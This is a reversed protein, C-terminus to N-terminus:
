NKLSKRFSKADAKSLSNFYKMVDSKDTHSYGLTVQFLNGKIETRAKILYNDNEEEILFLVQNNKFQFLKAFKAM